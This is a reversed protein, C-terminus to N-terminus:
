ALCDPDFGCKELTYITADMWELGFAGQAYIQTEGDIERFKYTEGANNVMEFENAM